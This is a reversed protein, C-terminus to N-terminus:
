EKSITVLRGLEDAAWGLVELGYYGWSVHIVNWNKIPAGIISQGTPGARYYNIEKKKKKQNEKRFNSFFIFKLCFKLQVFKL